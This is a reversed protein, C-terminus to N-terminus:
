SLLVAGILLPSLLLIIATARLLLAALDVVGLALAQRFRRPRLGPAPNPCAAGLGGHADGSLSGEPAALRDMAGIRDLSGAVQAV